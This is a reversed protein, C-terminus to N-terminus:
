SHMTLITIILAIGGVKWLGEAQIHLLLALAKEGHEPFGIVGSTRFEQELGVLVSALPNPQEELALDLVDRRDILPTLETPLHLFFDDGLPVDILWEQVFAVFDFKPNVDVDRARARQLDVHVFASQYLPVSLGQHLHAVSYLGNDSSIEAWTQLM